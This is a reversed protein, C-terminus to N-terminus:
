KYEWKLSLCYVQLLSVIGGISSAFVDLGDLEANAVDHSTIFRTAIPTTLAGWREGKAYEMILHVEDKDRHSTDQISVRSPMLSRVKPGVPGIILIQLSSTM